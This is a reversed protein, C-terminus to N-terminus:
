FPAPADAPLSLVLALADAGPSSAIRSPASPWEPRTGCVHEAMVDYPASFRAVGGAPMARIAYDDRVDLVLREGVTRFTWTRRDTILALAEGQASLPRPDVTAVLACIDADLGSIVPAGCRCNTARARRTRGNVMLGSGELRARVVEWIEPNM